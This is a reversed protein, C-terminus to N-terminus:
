WKTHYNQEFWAKAAAAKEPHSAIGQSVYARGAAPDLFKTDTFRTGSNRVKSIVSGDPNMGMSQRTQGVQSKLDELSANAVNMESTTQKMAADIVKLKNEDTTLDREKQLGGLYTLKAKVEGELASVGKSLSDSIQTKQKSDMGEFISQDLTGFHAASAYAQTIKALAQPAVVTSLAGYLQAHAEDMQLQGKAKAINVPLMDLAVKTRAALNATAEQTHQNKFQLGQLKIPDASLNFQNLISLGQAKQDAVATLAEDKKVRYSPSMLGKISEPEFTIGKASLRDLLAPVDKPDTRPNVIAQFDKDSAMEQKGQLTMDQGRMRVGTMAQHYAMMGLSSLNQGANQVAATRGAQEYQFQNQTTQNQQQTEQGRQNLFGHGVGEALDRGKRGTLAAALSALGLWIDGPHKSGGINQGLTRPTPAKLPQGTNPDNFEGAQATQRQDWAQNLKDGLPDGTDQGTTSSSNLPAQGGAPATYNAGNDANFAGAPLGGNPDSGLQSGGFSPQSSGGSAPVDSGTLVSPDM